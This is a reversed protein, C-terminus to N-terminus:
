FDSKNFKYAVFKDDNMRNIVKKYDQKKGHGVLHCRLYEFTGFNIAQGLTVRLINFTYGKYFGKIGSENHITKSMNIISVTKNNEKKKAVITRNAIVNFPYVVTNTIFAGLGGLFSFKILNANYKDKENTFARRVLNYFMVNMSGAPMVTLMYASYGPFFAKIGGSKYIEIMKNKIKSEESAIFRIRLHEIPFLITSACFSAIIGIKLFHYASLSKEVNKEFNNKTYEIICFRSAQELTNFTIALSNGKFFRRIGLKQYVEILGDLLKNAKLYDTQFLVKMSELPATVTRSIAGSIMGSLFVKIWKMFDHFFNGQEYDIDLEFYNLNESSSLSLVLKWRNVLHDFNKEGFLIIFSSWEEFDISGNKKMDMTSILKNFINEDISINPYLELISNKAQQYTLEGNKDKDLDYFIEYNKLVKEKFYVEFEAKSIKDDVKNRNSFKIKRILDDAMEKPLGMLKYTDKLEDITITGNGDKDLNNFIKNLHKYAERRIKEQKLFSYIDINLDDIINEMVNIKSDMFKNYVKSTIFFSRDNPFLDTLKEAIKEKLLIKNKNFVEEDLKIDLETFNVNLKRNISFLMNRIHSLIERKEKFLNDENLYHDDVKEFYYNFNKLSYVEYIAEILGDDLDQKNAIKKNDNSTNEFNDDFLTEKSVNALSKFSFHEDNLNVDISNEKDISSTSKDM